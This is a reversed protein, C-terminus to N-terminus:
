ILAALVGAVFVVFGSIPRYSTGGGQSETSTLSLSPTSSTFTTPLSATATVGAETSFLIGSISPTTPEPQTTSTTSTQGTTTTEQARSDSTSVRHIPRSTSRSKFSGSEELEKSRTTTTTTATTTTITTSSTHRTKASSQKTTTPKTRTSTHPTQSTLPGPIDYRKACEKLSIGDPCCWTAGQADASCFYGDDCSDLRHNLMDLLLFHQAMYEGGTGGPCCTQKKLSDYCHKLKDDSACRRFGKGCAEACTDGDQCLQETPSYGEIARRDLGFINRTSM